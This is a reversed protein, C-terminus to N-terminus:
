LDDRPERRQLWAALAIIVAWLLYPLYWPADDQAWIAVLPSVLLLLAFLFLLVVRDIFGTTEAPKAM